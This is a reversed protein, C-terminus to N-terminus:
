NDRSLSATLGKLSESITDFRALAEEMRIFSDLLRDRQYALRRELREIQEESRTNESKLDDIATEILGTSENLLDNATAHMNAGIGRSVNFDVVNTGAGTSGGTYLLTLGQAGTEDNFTLTDGNFSVGTESGNIWARTIAAGDHEIEIQYPTAAPQTNGDFGIMTIDPDNASFEFAFLERIGDPDNLLADNLEAEDIELTDARTPNSIDDNDVFDIGIQGLVELDGSVNQAGLSFVSSLEAEVDSLVRNGALAGVEDEDMGELAVENRQANLYQKVGNYAEVFDAIATKVSNLDREVGIEITTGPEAKFLDVTMGQFLDDITNSDRTIVREANPENALGLGGPDTFTTLETGDDASIQLRFQGGDEVVAASIEDLESTGTVATDIRNAVDRLTDTSKNYTVTYTEGGHDITLTHDATDASDIVTNADAFTGTQLANAVTLGDAKLKANQAAQLENAVDTGTLVGIDNLLTDTGVDELTMEQGTDDASLTLTFASDSVQVISATVGTPNDGTNANNIRDRLDVLSDDNQVVIDTTNGATGIRITGSIANAGAGFATGLDDTQSTATASAVRHATARQLVEVDHTGVEARNTVNVGMISTAESAAVSDTRTANLFAQKSAFVDSSRDVSLAGRLVNVSERLGSLRDGLVGLAAIKATNDDIKTELRDVPIRRAEMISDVAQRFDIGSRLGSFSVNGNGDSSLANQNFLEM